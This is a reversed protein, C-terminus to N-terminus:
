SYGKCPKVNVHQYNFPGGIQLNSVTSIAGVDAAISTTPGIVIQCNSVLFVLCLTLLKNNM